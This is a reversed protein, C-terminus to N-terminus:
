RRAGAACVRPALPGILKKLMKRGNDAGPMAAAASSTNMVLRPKKMTGASSPEGRSIITACNTIEETSSRNSM